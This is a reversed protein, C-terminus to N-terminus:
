NSVGVWVWFSVFKCVFLFMVLILVTPGAGRSLTCHARPLEVKATQPGSRYNDPEWKGSYLVLYTFTPSRGVVAVYAVYHTRSGILKSVNCVAALRRSVKTESDIHM